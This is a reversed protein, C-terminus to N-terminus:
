GKRRRGKRGRRAAGPSAATKRRGKGRPASGEAGSESSTEETRAVHQAAAAEDTVQGTKVNLVEAPASSSGAIAGRGIRALVERVCLGVLSVFAERDQGSFTVLDMLQSTQEDFPLERSIEEPAAELYNAENLFRLDSEVEGRLIEIIEQVNTFGAVLPAVREPFQTLKQTIAVMTAGLPIELEAAVLLTREVVAIDRELQKVRLWREVRKWEGESGGVKPPQIGSEEGEVNEHARALQHAIMFEMWAMVDHRGDAAPVPCAAAYRPDQRWTQITRRTVPFGATSLRAAM